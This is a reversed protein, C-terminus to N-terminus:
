NKLVVMPALSDRHTADAPAEGGSADLERRAPWDSIKLPKTSVAWANRQNLRGARPSITAVSYETDLQWWSSRGREGASPDVFPHIPICGVSFFAALLGSVLGRCGSWLELSVGIM